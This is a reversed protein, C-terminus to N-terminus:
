HSNLKASSFPKLDDLVGEKALPEEDHEIETGLKKISDLEVPRISEGSLDPTGGGFNMRWELNNRSDANSLAEERSIVGAEALELLSQDFTQMGVSASKEMIEKIQSIKGQVVLEAVFPSNILVEVAPVRKAEVGKILRQSVICRLNLSLDQLIKNRAAAPFLNIIRDLAQNSNVAHLTSLVLHGTDAFNLAAQMTESDRIEGIMIVDPAERMAERLASQYSMTDIGVERQGIISKKHTFTFEIPDEITLIHGSKVSNRYDIMSSLTTSKGTGTAGVMLVLGSKHMVLKKLVPPVHLSDIAPIQSSIYRIVMSAEGRQMYINVRFRGVDPISLGLNMEKTAEFKERQEESMIEDAVRRVVGPKLASEAVPIVEGQIKISAPAGTTLFLDSADKEAMYQLYPDIKM